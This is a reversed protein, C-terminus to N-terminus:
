GDAKAREAKAEEENTLRKFPRHRQPVFGYSGVMGKRQGRKDHIVFPAAYDQFVEERWAENVEIPTRFWDFCIQRSVTIYNVCM